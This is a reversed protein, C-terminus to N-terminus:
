APEQLLPERIALAQPAKCSAIREDFRAEVSHYWILKAPDFRTVLSFSHREMPVGKTCPM